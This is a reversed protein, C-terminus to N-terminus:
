RWPCTDNKKRVIFDQMILSQNGYHIAQHTNFSTCVLNEMDFICDRRYLVDDITIPNIHHILIGHDIDRGPFSLDCANDRIIVDRRVRRWEDCTYLLQNLRRHGGFTSDGVIGNLRLYEYRGEFTPITILESYSRSM